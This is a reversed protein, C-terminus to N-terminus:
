YIYSAYSHCETYKPQQSMIKQLFQSVLNDRFFCLCGKFKLALIPLSPNYFDLGTIKDVEQKKCAFSKQAYQM